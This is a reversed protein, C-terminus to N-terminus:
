CAIEEPKCSLSIRVPPEFGVDILKKAQNSLAAESHFPGLRVRHIVKDALHKTVITVPDFGERRLRLHMALAGRQESFAGVQLWSSEFAPTSGASTSGVAPSSDVDGGAHYVNIARVEVPATGQQAFGLKVAAAYSLDIIRNDHFPGRDNVRVVLQKGNDLNTVEVFTPLPLTRHAASIKHMDFTEGSSTRRGHFKRGYWSARGRQQYGDSSALVQYSKGNVTYPSHNGYKSRPESRPAPTDVASYDVSTRPPGDSSSPKTQPGGCAALALSIVLISILRYFHGRQLFKM